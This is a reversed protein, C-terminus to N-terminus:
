NKGAKERKQFNLVPLPLFDPDTGDDQNQVGAPASSGFYSARSLAFNEPQERVEALNSLKELQNMTMAALEEKSFTNRSNATITEVMGWRRENLVRRGYELVQRDEESLTNAVTKGKMGADCNEEAERKKKADIKAQIFAPLANDKPEPNLEGTAAVKGDAQADDEGEGVGARTGEGVEADVEEEDLQEDGEDKVEANLVAQKNLTLRALTRDSLTNLVEREDEEFCCDDGILGDVVAQREEANLTVTETAM